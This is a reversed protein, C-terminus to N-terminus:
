LGTRNRCRPCYMEGNSRIMLSNECNPCLCGISFDLERGLGRLTNELRTQGRELADIREKWQDDQDTEPRSSDPFM